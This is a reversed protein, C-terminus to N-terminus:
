ETIAQYSLVMMEKRFSWPSGMLQMMAIGVLEEEPDIWFVTGAAGGWFYSGKSAMVGAEIPDTLMGFGLGFGTGPASSQLGSSESGSSEVGIAPSEGSGTVSTVANLHNQTMFKITKPSLLRKGALEGGNRLMEAFKMYDGITSVLGQGGLFLTVDSTSPNYVGGIPLKVVQNQQANWFHNDVLREVKDAPVDFFTDEMDLPDFIRQKLLQDFPLGSIKEAVAGLVDSAMSYHWREGPEFMLPLEAMALTYETLDKPVSKFAEQYLRDVPETPNFGYSLGSTHTLLHRMTMPGNTKIGGDATWITLNAFEPLFKAVPDSLQFAGEEYLMMVAVATIPKTMSYIRFLTKENIATTNEVGMTGAADIHVVKGKRAIMTLVGALKGEDVYRQNSAEMRLLRESSMGVNEPKTQRMEKASLGHSTLLILTILSIKLNM